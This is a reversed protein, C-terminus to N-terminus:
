NPTLQRSFKAGTQGTFPAATALFARGVLGIRGDLVHDNFGQLGNTANLIQSLTRQILRDGEHAQDSAHQRQLHGAIRASRDVDTEFPRWRLLCYSCIGICWGGDVGLGVRILQLDRPSVVRFLGFTAARCLAHYAFGSM